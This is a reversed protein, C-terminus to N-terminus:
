SRLWRWLLVAGAVALLPRLNLVVMSHAGKEQFQVEAILKM